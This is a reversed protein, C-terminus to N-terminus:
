RRAKSYRGLLRWNGLSESFDRHRNRAGRHVTDLTEDKGLDRVRYCSGDAYM